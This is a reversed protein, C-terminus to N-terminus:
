FRHDTQILLWDSQMGIYTRRHRGFRSPFRAAFRGVYETGHFRLSAPMKRERRRITGPHLEGLSHSLQGTLIRSCFRDMQNHVIEAAMGALRQRVQLALFKAALDPVAERNM